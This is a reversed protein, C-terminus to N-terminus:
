LVCAGRSTRGRDDFRFEILDDAPSMYKELIHAVSVQGGLNLECDWSAEAIRELCVARASAGRVMQVGQHGTQNM